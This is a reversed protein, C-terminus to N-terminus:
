RKAERLGPTKGADVAQWFGDKTQRYFGPIGLSTANRDIDLWVEPTPLARPTTFRGAWDHIVHTIGRWSRDPNLIGFDSRENWRYGGPFWWCFTGNAGSRYAMTYFDNYFTKAFALKEPTAQQISRACASYGFEAWVVPTDPAVCRAYAATWWGPKVREWDGIRGYGEPEMIDVAGVLGKFDYCPWAPGHTPDGAMSMRFSVSHNPDIGRVLERARGYREHTIDNLFRHYDRVMKSWVGEAKMQDDTPNTITGDERRPIPVGWIKEAKDVSGYTRNVWALWDADYKQRDTHGRWNPEWALDYAFIDDNEALRGQEIMEKVLDWPFDMPTGPRLSLNVKLHHNRCRVLLDLLNGSSLSRHYQFVSVSNFGIAECDTLDREIIDPDYSRPNLWYEFYEGDEIGIGSSPMYNVGHAYWKKGNLWFDGDRTTIFSPKPNPRWISVDHALRDIVKGDRVLEATVRFPGPASGADTWPGGHNRAYHNNPGLINPPIPEQDSFLKKGAKDTISLRGQCEPSPGAGRYVAALGITPLPEGFTGYHTAGGEMLFMGDLMRMGLAAIWQQTSSNAFFAHDSIPLTAIMGGGTENSNLLLTAAAGVVRGKADLADIIPIYRYKRHKDIGTGQPRAVPSRLSKPQVDLPPMLAQMPNMRTRAFNTVPYTKYHPSVTELIPEATDGPAFAALDVEPGPAATGIDDLWIDHPGNAVDHTHTHALGFAIASVESLRVQDGPGGRERATNDKWYHFQSLPVLIPEFTPKITVAAIWRSGDQERLEVAVQTTKEDGKARLYFCSNADGPLGNLPSQFTDWGTLNAIHLHLAGDEVAITSPPKLDNSARTWTRATDSFPLVITPKLQPILKERFANFELWEGRYEWLARRFPLDGLVILRGGKEVYRPLAQKAGMPVSKPNCLVILDFVKPVLAYPNDLWRPPMARVTYGRAQQRIAEILSEGWPADGVFVGITNTGRPLSALLEAAEQRGGEIRVARQPSVVSIVGSHILGALPSRWDEGIWLVLNCERATALSPVDATIAVIGSGSIRQTEIRHYGTAKTELRLTAFEGPPLEYRIDVPTRTSAILYDPPSAFAVSYGDKAQALAPLLSLAVFLLYRM